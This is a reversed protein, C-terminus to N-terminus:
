AVIEFSCAIAGTPCADECPWNCHALATCNAHQDCRDGCHFVPLGDELVVAGCPCAALCLGCGTCLAEEVTPRHNEM